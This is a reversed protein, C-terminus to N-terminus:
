KLAFRTEASERPAAVPPPVRKLWIERWLLYNERPCGARISHCGDCTVGELLVTNELNILKRTPEYIMRELRRLVRHRGGCFPLMEVTFALGRNKGHVDLTDVIEAQPKVRVWDGPMLNLRGVPTKDQRGELVLHSRGTLLWRLRLWVAYALMRAMRWVSSNRARLDRVYCRVDFPSLFSTARILETSQCVYQGDPLSCPFPYEAAAAAAPAAEPTAGAPRRKLWAEKWFLLCGKQCGGHASGDCRLGGLFVTNRIRRMQGRAEECARELRKSVTFHTGCFRLMEPMFPLGELSGNGDLTALIEPWPRVQVTDGPLLRTLPRPNVPAPLAFASVSFCQFPGRVM